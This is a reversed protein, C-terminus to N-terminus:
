NVTATLEITNAYVNPGAGTLDVEVPDLGLTPDGLVALGAGPSIECGSIGAGPYATVLVGGCEAGFSNPGYSLPVFGGVVTGQLGGPLLSFTLDVNTPDTSVDIQWVAPQENQVVGESAFHTGFALDQFGTVTIADTEVTVSASVTGADSQAVAERAGASALLVAAALRISLSMRRCAGTPPSMREM